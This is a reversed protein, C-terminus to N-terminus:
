YNKWQTICLDRLYFFM